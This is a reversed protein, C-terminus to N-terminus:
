RTASPSASRPIPSASAAAPASTASRRRPSSRRTAIAARAPPPQGDVEHLRARLADPDAADRGRQDRGLGRGHARAAHADVLRVGGLAGGCAFPAYIGALGRANSIGGGGGIEAAHCARSNPDFGGSNSCRCRRRDVEPGDDGEHMFEGIPTARSRRTCADDARHAARRGRAHRDLVRRRAADRGRRPLVDGLSKGSVRRVLEGVTWGFNIMHYGNRTGPEWFPEEDALMEVMYDWDTCGGPRLPTKFAPLGVSHDLMMRVTAHEKGKRAFEPWYEAVPADVDLQGRSALVHACLATAGKTCSFVISVTDRQWPAGDAPRALGGWLDVVTRGEHTICM